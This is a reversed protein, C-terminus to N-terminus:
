VCGWSLRHKWWLDVLELFGDLELTVQPILEKPLLSLFQTLLVLAWLSGLVLALALVRRNTLM